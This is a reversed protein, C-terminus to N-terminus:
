REVVAYDDGARKELERFQTECDALTRFGSWDAGRWTIVFNAQTPRKPEAVKEMKGKFQIYIM